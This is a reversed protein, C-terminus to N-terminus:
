VFPVPEPAAPDCYVGINAQALRAIERLQRTTPVTSITIRHNVWEEGFMRALMDEVPWPTDSALLLNTFQLGSKEGKADVRLVADRALDVAFFRATGDKAGPVHAIAAPTRGELPTKM